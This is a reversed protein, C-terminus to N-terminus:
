APASASEGSRRYAIQRMGWTIGDRDPAATLAALDAGLRETLGPHRERVFPDEGWVQLNLGFMAAARNVGPSFTAVASTRCRLGPPDPLADLAPGPCLRHGRRELLEGAVELYTALAPEDTRIWEVEDLLLLGGPELQTAWDALATAPDELHSLLLRTYILGAPGVPFPVATVDHRLFEPSTGDAAPHDGHPGPAGGAATAAEVFRASADLGVTRAPRLTRALLRTTHGPGCGLDVALGVQGGVAGALFRESTPEFVEAVRALREAALDSDGFAYSSVATDYHFAPASGGPPIRM